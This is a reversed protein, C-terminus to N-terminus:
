PSEWPLLAVSASCFIRWTANCRQRYNWKSTSSLIHLYPKQYLKNFHNQWTLLCVNAPNASTSSYTPMHTLVPLCPDCISVPKCLVRNRKKFWIILTAITSDKQFIVHALQYMHLNVCFAWHPWTSLDLADNHSATTTARKSPASM